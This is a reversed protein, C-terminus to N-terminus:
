PAIRRGTGPDYGAKVMMANLANIVKGALNPRLFAPHDVKAIRKIFVRLAKDTPHRACTKWMVEIKARQADTCGWRDTWQPRATIKGAKKISSKFGLYEFAQMIAIFQYEYELYKVSDIGAAGMILSRYDEDSLGLSKKAVHILAQKGKKNVITHIGNTMIASVGHKGM